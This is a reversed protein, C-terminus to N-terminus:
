SVEKVSAFPVNFMKAIEIKANEITTVGPHLRDSYAKRDRVWQVERDFSVSCHIVNGEPMEVDVKFWSQKNQAL